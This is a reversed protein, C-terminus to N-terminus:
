FEVGAQALIGKQYPHKIERMETVLDAYEVLTFRADDRGYRWPPGAMAAAAPVPAVTTGASLSVPEATPAQSQLGLWAAAILAVVVLLSAIAVPRPPIFRAIQM